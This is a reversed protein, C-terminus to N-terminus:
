LSTKYNINISEKVRQNWIYSDRTSDSGNSEVILGDNIVLNDTEFNELQLHYYKIIKKSFDRGFIHKNNLPLIWKNNYKILHYPSLKCDKLPYNPAISNKYIIYPANQEDSKTFSTFINKIQVKRNDDTLVLDGVSLKTINTYGNPTLIEADETLCEAVQSFSDFSLLAGSNNVSNFGPNAMLLAMPPAQKAQAYVIGNTEDPVIAVTLKSGASITKEGSLPIDLYKTSSQLNFGGIVQAQSITVTATAIVVNNEFVAVKASTATTSNDLVLKVNGSVTTIQQLGISSIDKATTLEYLGNILTAEATTAIVESFGNAAFTTYDTTSIDGM